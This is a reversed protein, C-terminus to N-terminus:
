RGGSRMCKDRFTERAKGQLGQAAAQQSCSKAVAQQRPNMTQGVPAGAPPRYVGAGAGPSIITGPGQAFAAGALLTLVAAVPLIRNLKVENSWRQASNLAGRAAHGRRVRRLGM